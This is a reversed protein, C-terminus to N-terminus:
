HFTFSTNTGPAIYFYEGTPKVGMEVLDSFVVLLTIYDYGDITTQPERDVLSNLQETDGFLAKALEEDQPSM